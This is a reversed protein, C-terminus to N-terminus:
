FKLEMTVFVNFLPAPNVYMNRNGTMYDDRKEYEGEEEDYVIKYRNYDSSYYASNYNDKENLINGLAIKIFTDKGFLDFSYKVDAGVEFFAPLKAESISEEDQIFEYPLDPDGETGIPGTWIYNTYYEKVYNAYYDDWWKTSLGLRLKGKLPFKEFTYGLSTNMMKEPSYPVVQGVVDEAPYNFITKHNKNMKEWRNRGLTASFSGDVNFYEVNGSLEFGQHIANGANLTLTQNIDDGTEQNEGIYVSSSAIKDKYSTYYYNASLSIISNRYGMGFEATKAKEPKLEVFNWEYNNDSIEEPYTQKADPGSFRDYWDGARPEKYSISYNALLNINETANWNIGTKPSFFSFTKTYDDESFRMVPNGEDDYVIEPQLPDATIKPLDKTGYVSHGTFYGYDYDFIKIRNEEITTTYTAYQGDLVINVSEVPKYTTRLFGSLNTVISSYDYRRQSNDYTLAVIPSNEIDVTYPDNIRYKERKAYHDAMWRRYEGGVVAKFANSFKNEYYTNVGLQFHESRSNNRYSYDYSRMLDTGSGGPYTNFGGSAPTYLGYTDGHEYGELEIGYNKYLYRAHEGMNMDQQYQGKLDQFGVEGTEINFTSQNLYRGGGNGNTVFLNTMIVSEDNINWEDRLSLQPKFYYNEQYSHNERNYNRGLTKMLEIDSTDRAQNHKQPSGIYSLNLTHQGIVSQVEAGFSYGDYNTGHVYSDGAKREFMFNFNLRGRAINGSNYRFLINYNIPDYDELKGKGDATNTEDMFFGGASTRLTFTQKPKSGMTEINISGGFAGSGYMSSGAGRQVQVSKVNSSLGTWNSWYVKQSEPDNVPIGNILIQIKEADFGRMTIKSDGLGTSSSFVGPTDDILMPIDETTYKDSIDDEKINTFAIPTEREVARTATVRFGEIEIAQQILEFNLTSTEDERINIEKSQVRYGMFQAHITYAGVPIKSIIYNGNSKTYTGMKLEVVFVSVDSLPKGSEDVVKGALKGTTESKLIITKQSHLSFTFLLIIFVILIIKQM